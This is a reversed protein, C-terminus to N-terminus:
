EKPDFALITMRTDRASGSQDRAYREYDRKQYSALRFGVAEMKAIYEEPDRNYVPPNGSRRWRRDMIEAILVRAGVEAARQMEIGVQEDDIHLLVTYFLVSRCAPLRYGFDILKFSHSCLNKRAISVAKPSVDVGLYEGPKFLSAIRGVGCGVELLPFRGDIAERLAREVDFGEPFSQGTEPKIHAPGEEIWFAEEPTRWIQNHQRVKKGSENLVFYSLKQDNKKRSAQWHRIVAPEAEWGGNIQLYPRPLWATQLPSIANVDCWASHLHVQDWTEPDAESRLIWQELLRQTRDSKGFYLTGSCFEWGLRREEVSWANKHIAFDAQLCKFLIPDAEVTADVDIWV